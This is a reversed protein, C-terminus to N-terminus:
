GKRARRKPADSEADGAAAASFDKGALAEAIKDEPVYVEVRANTKGNFTNLRTRFVVGVGVLAAAFDKVPEFGSSAPPNVNTAKSLQKIRFAADKSFVLTDFLKRPKDLALEGDATILSEVSFEINVSPKPEKTTPRAEAKVIRGRYLGNALPPPPADSVKDWDFSEEDTWGQNGPM